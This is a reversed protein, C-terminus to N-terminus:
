TKNKFSNWKGFTEKENLSIESLAKKQRETLVTNENIHSLALKYYQRTLKELETKLELTM